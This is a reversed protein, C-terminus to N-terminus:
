IEADVARWQPSEFTEPVMKSILIFGYLFNPPTYLIRSANLTLKALVARNEIKNKFPEAEFQRSGNHKHQGPIIAHMIVAALGSLSVPSTIRIDSSLTGNVFEKRAWKKM